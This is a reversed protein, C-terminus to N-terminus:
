KNSSNYKEHKRCEYLLRDGESTAINQQYTLDCVAKQRIWHQHEIIIEPCYIYLGLERTIDTIETDWYNHIYGPYCHKRLFSLTTFQITAVKGETIGDNPMILGYQKFNNDWTEKLLALWNPTIPWMDDNLIIVLDDGSFLNLFQWIAKVIGGAKNEYVVLFYDMGATERIQQLMYACKARREKTTSIFIIMNWYRM